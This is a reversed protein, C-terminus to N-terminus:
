AGPNEQEGPRRYLPRSRCRRIYIKQGHSGSFIGRPLSFVTFIRPQRRYHMQHNLIRDANQVLERLPLELANSIEGGEVAILTVARGYLFLTTCHMYKSIIGNIFSVHMPATCSDGGQDSFKTVTVCLRIKEMDFPIIALEKARRVLHSEDPMKESSGLMLPLLFESLYLRRIEEAGDTVVKLIGNIKEDLYNKIDGLM